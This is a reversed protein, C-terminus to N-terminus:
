PRREKTIKGGERGLHAKSFSHPKSSSSLPWRAHMPSLTLSLLAVDNTHLTRKPENTSALQTTCARTSEESFNSVDQLPVTTDVISTMEQLQPTERGERESGNERSRTTLTDALHIRSSHSLRRLENTISHKVLKETHHRSLASPIRVMIVTIMLRTTTNDDEHKQWVLEVHFNLENTVSRKAIKSLRPIGVM